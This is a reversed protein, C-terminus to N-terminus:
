GLVKFRAKIGRHLPQLRASCGKPILALCGRRAGVLARARAGAHGPSSDALLLSAAGGGNSGSGGDGSGNDDAEACQQRQLYPLWVAELWNEVAAASALDAGAGGGAGAM